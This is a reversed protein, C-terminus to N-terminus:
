FPHNAPSLSTIISTQADCRAEVAEQYRYFTERSYGMICCAKSLNGLEQALNLLGVKNKIIKENAHLM